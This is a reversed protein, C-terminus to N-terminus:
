WSWCSACVAPSGFPWLPSQMLKQLYLNNRLSGMGRRPVAEKACTDVVPWRGRCTFTTGPYILFEVCVCGGVWGHECAHMRARACACRFVCMCMCLCTCVCGDACACVCVCVCLCARAADMCARVRARARRFYCLCRAVCLVCCVVCVCVSVAGVSVCVCLSNVM